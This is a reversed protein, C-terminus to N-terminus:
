KKGHRSTIKKFFGSILGIVSKVKDKFFYGGALISAVIIQFIYSGTGPDLYASAPKVFIFVFVIILSIMMNIIDTKGDM